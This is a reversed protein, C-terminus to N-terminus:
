TNEILPYVKLDPALTSDFSETINQIYTAAGKTWEKISNLISEGEDVGGYQVNPDRKILIFYSLQNKIGLNM